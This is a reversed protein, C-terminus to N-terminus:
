CRAHPVPLRGHPFLLDRSRCTLFFVRLQACSENTWRDQNLANGETNPFANGGGDGSTIYLTEDTRISPSARTELRVFTRLRVAAGPVNFDEKAEMRIKVANPHLEKAAARVDQKSATV